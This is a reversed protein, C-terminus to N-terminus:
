KVAAPDFTDTLWDRLALADKQNLFCERLVLDGDDDVYAYRVNGDLEDRKSCPKPRTFEIDRREVAFRAAKSLKQEGIENGVTEM